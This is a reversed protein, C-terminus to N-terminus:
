WYQSTQRHCGGGPGVTWATLKGVAGLMCLEPEGVTGDGGGGGSGGCTAPKGIAGGVTWATLKGVAGLMCLEPEGVTGVGGGGGGQDLHRGLWGQVKM